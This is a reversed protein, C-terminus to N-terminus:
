HLTLLCVDALFTLPIKLLNFRISVQHHTLSGPDTVRNQPISEPNRKIYIYIWRSHPIVLNEPSKQLHCQLFNGFLNFVFGYRETTTGSCILELPM